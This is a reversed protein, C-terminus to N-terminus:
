IGSDHYSNFTIKRVENKKKLGKGQIKLTSKIKPVIM